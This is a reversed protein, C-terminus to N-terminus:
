DKRKVLLGWQASVAASGRITKGGTTKRDKKEPDKKISFARCRLSNCLLMLQSQMARGRFIASIVTLLYAHVRRM